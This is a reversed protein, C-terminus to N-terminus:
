VMFHYGNTYERCVTRIKDLISNELNYLFQFNSPSLRQQECAAVVAEGLEVAGYGGCAWHNCVVANNAGAEISKQIVTNLENPTDSAFKNM